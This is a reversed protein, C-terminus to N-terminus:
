PAIGGVSASQDGLRTDLHVSGAMLDSISVLRNVQRDLLEGQQAPEQEMWALNVAGLPQQFVNPILVGVREGVGDPDRDGIQASFQGCRAAVPLRDFSHDPRAANRGAHRLPLLVPLEHRPNLPHPRKKMKNRFM